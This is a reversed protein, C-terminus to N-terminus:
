VPKFKVTNLRFEVNLVGNIIKKLVAFFRIFIFNCIVLRNHIDNKTKLICKKSLGVINRFTVKSSRERIIIITM